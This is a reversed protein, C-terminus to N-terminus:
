LFLPSHNPETNIFRNNNTEPFLEPKNNHTKIPSCRHSEQQFTEESVCLDEDNMLKTNAQKRGKLRKSFRM